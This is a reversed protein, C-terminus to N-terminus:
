NASKGSAIWQDIESKKLKWLKGVKHAPMEKVKIWTRVTSAKVGLYLAAEEISIYNDNFLEPMAVESQDLLVITNYWM